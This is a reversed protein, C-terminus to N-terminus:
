QHEREGCDGVNDLGALRREPVDIPDRVLRKDHLPQHEEPTLRPISPIPTPSTKRGPRTAQPNAGRRRLGAADGTRRRSGVGNARGVARTFEGYGM